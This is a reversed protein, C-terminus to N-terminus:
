SRALLSVGGSVSRGRVRGSGDGVRGALRQAGPMRSPAVGDFASAIDGSASLVDVDFGTTAPVRVTLDGSVTTVDIRLPDTPQLDLTVDGSVSKARIHGTRGDVLTLEGSVTTLSVQGTVGRLEVDGSVSQVEVDGAAEALTVDGAVCRVKTRGKVGAVVADATVVGISVECERPVAVSVVARRHEHGLLRWKLLGRWQLEEHAVTLRGQAVEVQLPVGDVATVEVRAGAVDDATVVDVHGAVIRVDVSRIPEDVDITTPEQVTWEAM